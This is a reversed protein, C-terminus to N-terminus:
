LIVAGNDIDFLVFINEGKNSLCPKSIDVNQRLMDKRSLDPVDCIIFKSRNLLLEVADNISDENDTRGYWIVDIGYLNSNKVFGVHELAMMARSSANGKSMRGGGTQNDSEMM